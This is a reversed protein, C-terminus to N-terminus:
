LRHLQSGQKWAGWVVVAGPGVSVISDGGPSSSLMIVIEKTDAVKAEHLINYKCRDALVTQTPSDSDGRKWELWHVMLNERCLSCM